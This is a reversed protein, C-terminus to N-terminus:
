SFDFRVQARQLVEACQAKRDLRNSQMLGVTTWLSQQPYRRIVSAMIKALVAFVDKNPHGIRSVIQPFAVHFQYPALENRSKNMLTTLKQVTVPM